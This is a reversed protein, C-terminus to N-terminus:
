PRWTPEIFRWPLPLVLGDDVRILELGECAVVLWQGDPSWDLGPSCTRGPQAFTRFVSGESDVVTIVGSTDTFAITEGTPAWRGAKGPVRWASLQLSALDLVRINYGPRVATFTVRSGDPSPSPWFVWSSDSTNFVLQAGSGDANARWLDYLPVTDRGTFIVSSGDRTYQPFLEEVLSSPANSLLPRSGGPSSVVHLRSSASYVITSGDPSWHPAAGGAVQAYGSGDLNLVVIGNGLAAITGPPVVSLWSRGEASGAKLDVYFRGIGQTAVLGTSDVLLGPGATYAVPDPRRNGYADASYGVVPYSAGVYVATDAPNLVVRVAAGPRITYHATDFDGASPVSVEIGGAGAFKNMSILVRARGDNDTTDVQFGTFFGGDTRAIYMSRAWPSDASIPLSLFEIPVGEQPRGAPSRFEVVLPQRIQANITDTLGFGSFLQLGPPGSPEAPQESCRAIALALGALAAMRAPKIM